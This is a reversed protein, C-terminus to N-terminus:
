QEGAEEVAGRPRRAAMLSTVSMWTRGGRRHRRAPELGGLGRGDVLMRMSPCRCAPLKPPLANSCEIDTRYAAFCYCCPVGSGLLELMRGHNRRRDEGTM